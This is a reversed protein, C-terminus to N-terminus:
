LRELFYINKQVPPTQNEIAIEANKNLAFPLSDVWYRRSFHKTVLGDSFSKASLSGVVSKKSQLAMTPLTEQM